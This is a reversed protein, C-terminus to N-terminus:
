TNTKRNNFLDRPRANDRATEIEENTINHFDELGLEALAKLLTKAPIGAQAAAKITIEAATDTNYEDLPLEHVIAVMINGIQHSFKEAM